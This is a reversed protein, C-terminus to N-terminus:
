AEEELASLFADWEEDPIPYTHESGPFTRAQVDEVYHGVAKRIEENLAAYRKVFRPHLRDFLGLMDHFVLVQGDCGNGAGIGITPITLSQSIYTALRDPIAELVLASCGSEQLIHADQLLRQATQATRGQARYGLLNISQPTLGIHGVVPIGAQVLREITPAIAAGGELKVAEMHGEALLRGANRLAEEPTIQYSLFPLDGLLLPTQSGRAVARCHHIMEEMTVRVTSEYGLVVMGLSDGVLIVDIGTQEVIVASTYDYATIMTIPRGKDKRQQLTRVTVKSRTSKTAVTPETSM